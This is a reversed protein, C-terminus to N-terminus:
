TDGQFLSAAKSRPSGDSFSAQTPSLHPIERIISMRGLSPKAPGASLALCELGTSIAAAERLKDRLGRAVPWSPEGM